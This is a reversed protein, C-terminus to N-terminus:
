PSHKVLLGVKNIGSKYLANVVQIVNDYKINKDAEVVIGNVLNLENTKTIAQSLQNFSYTKSNQSVKFTNNNEITFAIPQTDIQKVGSMSPLNLISPTFLQSTAMFIVLLVLMVDIYPVTNIQNIVVTKKTKRRM